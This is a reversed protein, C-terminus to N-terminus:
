EKVGELETEDFFYSVDSVTSKGWYIEDTHDLAYKQADEKTKIVGPVQIWAAGVEETVVKFYFTKPKSQPNVSRFIVEKGKYLSELIVGITRQIGEVLDDDEESGTYLKNLFDYQKQLYYTDLTITEM